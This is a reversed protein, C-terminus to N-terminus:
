TTNTATINVGSADSITAVLTQGTLCSTNTLLSYSISPGVNDTMTYDGELAGLDPATTSTGLYNANGQRITGDFDNSISPIATAGSEIQTGIGTNLHLFNADSATTSLFPPNESVSAQDRPAITGATYVGAKYAAITQASNTADYFILRTAGPTGAYFLNNNSTTAYNALLNAANGLDRRFAVTFGSGKPTSANVIINNRMDLSATTATTSAVQYVGSTGFNTASSTANLYISNYYLKNTSRAGTNTLGIGRVINTRSSASAQINGIINNYLTTSQDTVTGSILLGQAALSGVLMGLILFAATVKLRKLLNCKM